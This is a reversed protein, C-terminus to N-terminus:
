FIFFFVKGEDMTLEDAGAFRWFVRLRLKHLIALHNLALVSVRLAFLVLNISKTLKNSAAHTFKKPNKSYM